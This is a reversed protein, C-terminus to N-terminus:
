ARNPMFVIGWRYPEKEGPYFEAIQHGFEAAETQGEVSYKIKSSSMHSRHKIKDLYNKSM